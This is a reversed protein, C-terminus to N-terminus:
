KNQKFNKLNSAKIKIDQISYNVKRMMKEVPKIKIKGFMALVLIIIVICFLIKIIRALLGSVILSAFIKTLFEM